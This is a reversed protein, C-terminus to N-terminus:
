EVKMESIAKDKEKEDDDYFVSVDQSMKWVQITNDADVSAMMWETEKKRKRDEREEDDISRMERLDEKEKEEEEERKKRELDSEVWECNGSKSWAIDTVESTHGRHEFFVEPPADNMDESFVIEEGILRLDWLVVRGDLGCSAFVTTSASQLSSSSSQCASSSSTSSSPTNIMSDLKPGKVDKDFPAWAVQNVRESHQVFTHLSKKPNRIDWLLVTGREGGTLMLHGVGPTPNFSICIMGEREGVNRIENTAGTTAPVVIAIPQSWCKVVAEGGVRNDFLLASGDDCACGFLYQTESHWECSNIPSPARFTTTPQISSTETSGLSFISSMSTVPGEAVNWMCAKGDVSAAIVQGKNHVNWDLGYGEKELGKLKLGFRPADRDNTFSQYVKSMDAVVVDGTSIYSAVFKPNQPMYRARNVDGDFFIYRTPQIRSKEQPPNEKQETMQQSKKDIEESMNSGKAISTTAIYTYDLEPLDDKTEGSSSSSTLNSSDM